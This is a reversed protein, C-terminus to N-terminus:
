KKAKKLWVLIGSILILITSIGFLPIILIYFVGLFNQFIRATHVELALNWLPMPSNVLVEPMPINRNMLGLNYDFILRDRNLEIMGTILHQGIPSGASTRREPVRGTIYDRVGGSAPHWLFFGNFSGVLYAGHGADKLVNIGMVSVPPQNSFPFPKNQLTSDTHFLGDNTAILWYNEEENWHIARLRDHWTNRDSLVSFPIKGVRSNGIAILLPPRLFMGTLTTLILFGGLWIGLKNHCKVSFRMTKVLSEVEAKKRKRSKIWRPFFFYIYGTVVFFILLIAFFDVILKGTLGFIEGSHLFWLTKFLSAKGDDNTANQLIRIAFKPLPTDSDALFIESRSLVVLKGEKITLDAIREDHLPLDIKKWVNGTRELYFLGRQTGAFLHANPTLLLKSSRRNDAGKPLGDMFPKYANFNTDSLWIGINGYILLSDAGLALGSRIAANNWNQYRYEPPLINRNLELESFLVRHNLLMGSVAWLILFLGLVLSFWRHIWKWKKM